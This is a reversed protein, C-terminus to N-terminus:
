ADNHRPSPRSPSVVSDQLAKKMEASNPNSAPNSRTSVYPGKGHSKGNVPTASNM